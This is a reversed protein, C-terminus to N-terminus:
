FKLPLYGKQDPYKKIPKLIYEHMRTVPICRDQVSDSSKFEELQVSKAQRSEDASQIGPKSDHSQSDM